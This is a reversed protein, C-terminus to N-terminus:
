YIYQYIVLQCENHCSVKICSITIITGKFNTANMKNLTASKGSTIMITRVYEERIDAVREKDILGAYFVVEEINESTISHTIM